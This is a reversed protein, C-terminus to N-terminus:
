DQSLGAALARAREAIDPHLQPVQSAMEAVLHALDRVAARAKRDKHGPPVRVPTDSTPM